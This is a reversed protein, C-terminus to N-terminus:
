FLRMKTKEAEVHMVRAVIAEISLGNRIGNRVIRQCYKCVMSRNGYRGYRGTNPRPDRHCAVCAIPPMRKPRSKNM